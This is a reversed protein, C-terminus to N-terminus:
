ASSAPPLTGRARLYEAIEDVLSDLSRDGPASLRCIETHCQQHLEDLTTAYMDRVATLYNASEHAERPVGTRSTLRALAHAPPTDVLWVIDPLTTQYRLSLAEVVESTSRTQLQALDRPIQDVDAPLGLRRCHASYWSGISRWSGPVRHDLEPGLQALLDAVSDAANALILDYVPGYAMTDIIAHRDSILHSPKASELLHEEVPGYLTMQLYQIVLKLGYAHAEDALRSAMTLAESLAGDPLAGGDHYSPCHLATAETGSERLRATLRETLSTKGAGDIGVLSIRVAM